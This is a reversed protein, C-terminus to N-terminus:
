SHSPSFRDYLNYKSYAREIYKEPNAIHLFDSAIKKNLNNFRQGRIVIEKEWVKRIKRSPFINFLRKRLPDNGYVLVAQILNSDPVKSLRSQDYSWYAVPAIVNLLARKQNQKSIISNLVASM